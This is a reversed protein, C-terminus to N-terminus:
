SAIARETTEEEVASGVMAIAEALHTARVEASGDLDAITQAVARAHDRVVGSFRDLPIRKTEDAFGVAAFSRAIERTRAKAVRARVVASTERERDVVPAGPSPYPLTIRIAFRDFFGGRLRTRHRARSEESCSCRRGPAGYFGCLCPRAAAIVMEPAAKFEARRGERIVGISHTDLVHGLRELNARKFENVEDLFLVGRHALSVEGPRQPMGGGVFGSESVTHHPARFPRARVAGHYLPLLGAVSHLETVDAIEAATMAPLLTLARRALMAKGTGPAGIMLVNHRGSAAVELARKAAWLGHVDSLDPDSDSFSSTPPLPPTVNVLGEQRLMDGLGEAARVKMEPCDGLVGAAEAYNASPVVASRVGAAYAARLAVCVGRVARLQGTLSLEGVLLAGQYTAASASSVSSIGLTRITLNSDDNAASLIALAGALDLEASRGKWGESGDGVLSLTWGVELAKDAGTQQLASRIRVRGERFAEDAVGKVSIHGPRSPDPTAVVEFLSASTGLLMAAIHRNFSKLQSM